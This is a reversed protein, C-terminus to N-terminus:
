SCSRMFDNLFGESLLKVPQTLSTTSSSKIKITTSSGINDYFRLILSFVEFRSKNHLTHLTLLMSRCQYFCFLSAILSSCHMFLLFLRLRPFHHTFLTFLSYITSSYHSCHVFSVDNTYETSFSARCNLWAICINRHKLRYFCDIELYM